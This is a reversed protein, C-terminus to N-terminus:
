SRKVPILGRKTYVSVTKKLMSGTTSLTDGTSTLKESPGNDADSWAYAAVRSDAELIKVAETIFTDTQAQSCYSTAGSYNICAIETVWMPKGYQAYHDLVATIESAKNKFIHVNVVDPQTKVAKLFPGLWTEDAQKACSPSILISGAKGHPAIYEDWASVADATSILGSSGEGEFDAENFGIVYPYTGAKVKKFEAWRAADDDHGTQGIGWAMSAFKVDGLDTGSYPNPTWTTLWSMTGKMSNLSDGGALGGKKGNPTLGDKTYTTSSSASATSTSSTSDKNTSGSKASSTSKSKTGSATKSKASSGSKTKTSSANKHTSSKHHHHKHNHKHDHHRRKSACSDAKDLSRPVSDDAEISQGFLAFTILLLPLLTTPTCKM